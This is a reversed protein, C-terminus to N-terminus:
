LQLGEQSFDPTGRRRALDRTTRRAGRVLTHPARGARRALEAQLDIGRGILVGSFSHLETPRIWAIRKGTPTVLAPQAPHLSPDGHIALGNPGELTSAAPSEQVPAHQQFHRRYEVDTNM